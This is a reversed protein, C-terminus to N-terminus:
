PKGLNNYGDEIGEEEDECEVWENVSGFGFAINCCSSLGCFVIISCKWGIRVAVGDYM